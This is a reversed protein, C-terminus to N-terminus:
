KDAIFLSASTASLLLAIVMLSFSSGLLAEGDISLYYDKVKTHVGGWIAVCILIGVCNALSTIISMSSSHAEPMTEHQKFTVTGTKNHSLQIQSFSSFPNFFFGFQLVSIRTFRTSLCYLSHPFSWLRSWLLAHQVFHQLLSSEKSHQQLM